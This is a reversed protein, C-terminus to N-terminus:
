YTVTVSPADGQVFMLRAAQGGVTGTVMSDRLGAASAIFTVDGGGSEDAIKLEIKAPGGVLINAVIAAIEDPTPAAVTQVPM